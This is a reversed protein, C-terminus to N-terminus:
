GIAESVYDPHDRASKNNALFCTEPLSRFPIKYGDQVISQVFQSANLIDRWYTSCKYLGGRVSDSCFSAHVDDSNSSFLIYHQSDDRHGRLALNQRGALIVTEVIARLINRNYAIRESRLHDAQEDIGKIKGSMVDTFQALRLMSDRHILSHTEHEELKSVATKWNTLPEKFLNSLKTGNRGTEHGFLVCSLCFAGDYLKSYCLWSWRTFWSHSFKRREKKKGFERFPFNFTSPPHWHNNIINFKTDDDIAHKSSVFRGIDMADVDSVDLKPKKTILPEENDKGHERKLQGIIIM